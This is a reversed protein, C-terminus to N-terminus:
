KIEKEKQMISYNSASDSTMLLINNIEVGNKDLIKKLKKEDWGIAKLENKMVKGDSIISHPFGKSKPTLNTMGVTIPSYETKLLVSLQGNTEVIAYQVEEVYFIEKQRLAEIIDDINMRLRKLEEYDIKGNKIVIIPNGEIIGRFKPIKLAIVSVIIEFAILIGIPIISNILPLDNDQMPIIAIEAIIITVVLETPQLEGIQRKGMIRMSLFVLLYIIISRLLAVIM